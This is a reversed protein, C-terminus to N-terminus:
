KRGTQKVSDGESPQTNATQHVQPVQASAAPNLGLCKQLEDDTQIEIPVSPHDALAKKDPCPLTWKRDLPASGLTPVALVDSIQKFEDLAKKLKEDTNTM